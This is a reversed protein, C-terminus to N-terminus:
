IMLFFSMIKLNRQPQDLLSKQELEHQLELIEDDRIIEEMEESQALLQEAKASSQIRQQAVSALEDLREFLSPDQKFKLSIRM